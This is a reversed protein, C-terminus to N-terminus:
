HSLNVVLFAFGLFLNRQEHTIAGDTYDCRLLKIKVGTINLFSQVNKFFAIRKKKIEVM